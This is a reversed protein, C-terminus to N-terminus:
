CEVISVALGGRSTEKYKMQLDRGTELMTVIVKDLSVYHQGDGLLALRAANIAKVAAVANREICPIQVQGAVPDCTMGLHHEMGIEAANEVQLPTGGLVQALAGAAMSCAVGVEGQCGVEAGSISANEKYLIGIQGATLLFDRVGYLTSDDVFKMYYHLVAPIVGAAGNTPATVVRGGCANQENAAFAFANVWDLVSLPDNMTRAQKALHSYMEAARRRVKLPGPMVGETRLGRAVCDQMVSWLYDLERNIDDNSRWTRENARVIEAISLGTEECHKLLDACSHIPYPVETEHTMENKAEPVKDFNNDLSQVIFGGGTSYYRRSLLVNGHEDQAIVHMANSHYIAVKEPSLIIDRSPDFDLVKGTPLTLRKENKVNELLKPAEDLDVNAPAMGMLGLQFATDTAHGIGTAGLSGMFEVWIRDCKEDLQKLILEDMFRNAARMPGVTHSSSPGIGVRFIDFVSISM